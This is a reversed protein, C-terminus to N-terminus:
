NNNLIEKVRNILSPLNDKLSNWLILKDIQGYGHIIYNRLSIIGKVDRRDFKDLILSHLKNINEGIQSLDFLISKQVLKNSCFEEFSILDSISIIENYHELINELCIKDRENM